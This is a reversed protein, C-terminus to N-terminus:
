VDYGLAEMLMVRIARIEVLVHEHQQVGKRIDVARVDDLGATNAHKALQNMNSRSKGEQGSIKQMEVLCKSLLHNKPKPRKQARAGIEGLGAKRFYASVSLGADAARADAKKGEDDDVRVSIVRNRQRNESKKKPESDQDLPM